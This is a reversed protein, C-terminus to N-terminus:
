PKPEPLYMERLKTDIREVRSTAADEEGDVTGDYYAKIVWQYDGKANRTLELSSRTERAMQELDMMEETLERSLAVLV